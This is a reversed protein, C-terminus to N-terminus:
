SYRGWLWREVGGKPITRVRSKERGRRFGEREGYAIGQLPVIRSPCSWIGM